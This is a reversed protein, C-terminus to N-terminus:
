RRALVQEIRSVLPDRPWPGVPRMQGLNTFLLPHEIKPTPLGLLTRVNVIALAEAPYLLLPPDAFDGRGSSQTLHHDLVVVLKRAFLAPDSSWATLLEFYPGLRPTVVPREGARLRLLARVFLGLADSPQFFPDPQTAYLEHLEEAHPDDLALGLLICQAGHVPTFAPLSRGRHDQRSARLLLSCRLLAQGVRVDDWGPSEGRLVRAQGYGHWSTGLMWAAVHLASARPNALATAIQQEQATRYHRENASKDAWDLLQRQLSTPNTPPM